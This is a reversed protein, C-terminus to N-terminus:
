CLSMLVKCTKAFLESDTDMGALVSCGNIEISLTDAGSEYFSDTQSNALLEACVAERLKRQWYYYTKENIGARDCFARISLGSQKRENLVQSWHALRFEAVVKRTNM